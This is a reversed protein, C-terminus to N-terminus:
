MTQDNQKKISEKKVFFFLKRGMEVWVLGISLKRYAYLYPIDQKFYVM